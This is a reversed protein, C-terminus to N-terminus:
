CCGKHSQECNKKARVQEGIRYPCLLADVILHTGAVVADGVAILPFAAQTGSRSAPYGFVRANAISDPVDLVTRRSGYSTTEYPTTVVLQHCATSLV